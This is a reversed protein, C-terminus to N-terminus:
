LGDIASELAEICDRMEVEVELPSFPVTAM